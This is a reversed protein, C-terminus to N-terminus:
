EEGLVQVETVMWVPEVTYEPGDILGCTTQPVHRDIGVHVVLGHSTGNPLDGDIRVSTAMTTRDFAVVSARRRADLWDWGVAVLAARDAAQAPGGELSSLGRCHPALVAPHGTRAILADATSRDLHAWAYGDPFTLATPAFRHGGTHSVRRIRVGGTGVHDAIRHAAHLETFLATGFTGCCTDRRGHTCIFMDLVSADIEVVDDDFSSLAPGDVQILARGLEVVRQPAVLWERREFAGVGDAGARQEYATVRTPRAEGAADTPEAVVGQPRWRRGDPGTTATGVQEILSRFPENMSIDRQWPLPVEVCVFADYAGATGIPDVQLAQHFPACRAKPIELEAAVDM